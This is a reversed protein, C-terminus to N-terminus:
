GNSLISSFLIFVQEKKSSRRHSQHQVPASVPTIAKDNRLSENMSPIRTSSQPHMRIEELPKSIPPSMFASHDGSVVLFINSLFLFHLVFSSELGFGSKFITQWEYILQKLFILYRETRIFLNM